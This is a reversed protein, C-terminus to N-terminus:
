PTQPALLIEVQSLDESCWLFTINESGTIKALNNMDSYTIKELGIDFVIKDETHDFNWVNKAHILGGFFLECIPKYFPSADLRILRAREKVAAEDTRKYFRVRENIFVLANSTVFKQDMLIKHAIEGESLGPSYYIGGFAASPKVLFPVFGIPIQNTGCDLVVISVYDGKHKLIDDCIVKNYTGNSLQKRNMTITYGM